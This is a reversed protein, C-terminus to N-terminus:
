RNKMKSRIKKMIDFIYTELISEPPGIQTIMGNNLIGIRDCVDIVEFLDHSVYVMTLSFRRQIDRLLNKVDEKLSLDLSSMPEDLLLIDSKQAIARALALRQKEGGSLEEPKLRCRELLAVTKLIKRTEREVHTSNKRSSLVFKIHEEVSMHPWLGLDQFIFSVNRKEPQIFVRDSAVEKGRLYVEGYDQKELGAIIRLLTTKGSGSPGFVGFVEGKKISLNVGNLVPREGFRKRIENLRIAEGM